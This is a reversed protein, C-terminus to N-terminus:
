KKLLLFHISFLDYNRKSDNEKMFDEKLNIQTFISENLYKIIEENNLSKNPSIIDLKTLKKLIQIYNRPKGNYNSWSKGFPNFKKIEDPNEEMEAQEDNQNNNNEIQGDEINESNNLDKKKIEKKPADLLIEEINDDFEILLNNIEYYSYLTGLSFLNKMELLPIISQQQDYLLDSNLYGTMFVLNSSENEKSNKSLFDKIIKLVINDDFNIPNYKFHILKPDYNKLDKKSFLRRLQNSTENNKYFHSFILKPINVYLAKYNLALQWITNEIKLNSEDYKLYIIKNGYKKDFNQISINSSLTTDILISKNSIKQIEYLIQEPIKMNLNFEELENENLPDQNQIDLKIKKFRSQLETSLTQVFYFKDISGIKLIFQKILDFDILLTNVINDVILKKSKNLKIIKEYEEFLDNPLLEANEPDEPNKREKLKKIVENIDLLDYGYNQCLHKTFTTKGSYPMGYVININTIKDQFEQITYYDINEKEYYFIRNMEKFYIEVNKEDESNFPIELNNKNPFTVYILKNIQCISKEFEQIKDYTINDYKLIINKVDERFIYPKVCDIVLNLPIDLFKENFEKVKKGLINERLITEQVSRYVDVVHFNENKILYSELDYSLSSNDGRILYINPKIKNFFEEFDIEFYNNVKFKLVLDKEKELFKLPDNLKFQDLEVKLQASGIFQKDTSDLKMMRENSTSDDTELYYIKKIEKANKLFLRYYNENLPFDEILIKEEEIMRLDDIFRNIVYNDDSIRNVIDIRNLFDKFNIIDINIREKLCKSFTTKGSYKKGIICYIEPILCKKFKINVINPHSNAQIERIIGFNNYFQILPLTTNNFYKITSSILEESFNKSLLKRHFNEKDISLYIIIKIEKLKREIFLAQDLNRPFGSILFISNNSNIIKKLLLSFVFEDPILQRKKYYEECVEGIMSKAKLEDKILDSMSIHSFKLEQMIKECHFTTEVGKSGIVFILRINRKKLAQIEIEFKFSM